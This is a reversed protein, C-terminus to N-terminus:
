CTIFPSMLELMDFMNRDMRLAILDTGLRRDFHFSCESTLGGSGVGIKMGVIMTEGGVSLWSEPLIIGRGRELNEFRCSSFVGSGSSNGL